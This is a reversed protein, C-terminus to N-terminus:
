KSYLLHKLIAKMLAQRPTVEAICDYPFAMVIGKQWAIGASYNSSPYTFATFANADAPELVDSQQCPYHIASPSTIVPLSLGAGSFDNASSSSVSKSHRISARYISHLSQALFLSDCQGLYSGSIFIRGGADIYKSLSGKAKDSLTEYHKLNYPMDAQLGSIYDIMSFGQLEEISLNEFADRSMSSISVINGSAVIDELHLAIGDFRNGAIIQGEYETGCFGLSAAGSKGMASQAFVTQHGALSTNDGYSVGVDKLLDFGLSDTTEVVAPGSLRDFGNVILIDARPTDDASPSLYVSVPESPFSEGGSNIAAIRFQYHIGEKIGIYASTKDGKLLTGEDWDDNGVRKYIVYDSAIASPELPDEQPKWTLYAQHNSRDNLDTTIRASVSLVPLPQIVPEPLNHLRYVERLMVKYIARSAVFKFNPDHAFKMDRFNQHALLELITAPIQPSRTESYNAVRLEREPWAVAYTASLDQGVGDLMRGAFDRSVERSLGSRYESKGNDDYGTAITLSGVINNNRFYGADTHLAVQLEFPVRRGVTDPQYCSGGGLTNILYSRARLDDKYDDLGHEKSCLSDTLGAWQAYYRAAELYRPLGSRAGKGFRYHAITDTKLTDREIIQGDITDSALPVTTTTYTYTVEPISRETMSMGGGFRVADATVVLPGTANKENHSDTTLVVKNREPQDSEFLFTGLYVWTGCGMTQNVEFTSIGGAHYVIYHADTISNPLSAYSVYVAYRGKSPIAPTWIAKAGSAVNAQRVTGCTFPYITDNLTEFNLGFGESAYEWKGNETYNGYRSPSDNDVIAEHTQYDRERPTFVVAGSNELMPILYPYVFSQTLLDETTCFLYPRQWIWNNKAVDFYRGHSAWVSIHRGELGQSFRYPRSTRNIWPNGQYDIDQYHMLIPKECVTDQLNLACSQGQVTFVLAIIINIRIIINRLM